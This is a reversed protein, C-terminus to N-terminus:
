DQEPGNVVIRGRGNGQTTGDWVCDVSDETACVTPPVADDRGCFGGPSGYLEIGCRGWTVGGNVGRYVNVNHGVTAGLVLAAIVVATMRLKM